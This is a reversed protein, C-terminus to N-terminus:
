IFAGGDVGDITYTDTFLGGDIGGGPQTGLDIWAAAIADYGEFKGTASDYRMVGGAAAAADNGIRIKGSIDLKQTPTITGVGMNGAQTFGAKNSLGYVNDFSFKAVSAINLPTTPVVNWVKGGNWRMSGASVKVYSAAGTDTSIALNVFDWGLSYCNEIWVGIKCFDLHINTAEGYSVGGNFQGTDSSTEIKIPYARSFVKFGHLHFAEGGLFVFGRGNAMVWDDITQSSSYNEFLNYIMQLMNNEIWIFDRIYDFEAGQYFCGIFNDQIIGRSSWYRLAKYSNIFTNRRIHVGTLYADSAITWPYVIPTAETPHAQLPHYFVLDSVTLNFNKLSLFNSTMNTIMLMSCVPNVKPNNIVGTIPEFPGAVTGEFSIVTRISPGGAPTSYFDLVGTCLHNGVPVIVRGSENVFAADYAAQIAATNETGWVAKTNVVTTSAANALTVATPSVYVAITTTLNAGAAGAGRIVITKGADASTFYNSTTCTFATSGASVNGDNVAKGDGVAGYATIIFKPLGYIVANEDKNVLIERLKNGSYVPTDSLGEFTTTGGSGSIPKAIM